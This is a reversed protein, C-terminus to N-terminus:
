NNTFITKLKHENKHCSKCLTILDSLNELENGHNKYTIHHVQLNVKLGCGQCMKKDRELVLNRVKKWYDTKLFTMYAEKKSKSFKNVSSVEETFDALTIKQLNKRKYKKPKQYTGRKKQFKKYELREKRKDRKM